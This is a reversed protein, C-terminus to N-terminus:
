TVEGRQRRRPGPAGPAHAHRRQRADRERPQPAARPRHRVLQALHEPERPGLDARVAQPRRKPAAVIQLLHVGSATVRGTKWVGGPEPRDVYGLAELRRLSELMHSRSATNRGHIESSTRMRGIEAVDRQAQALTAYDTASLPKLAHAM